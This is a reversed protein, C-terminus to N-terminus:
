PRGLLAAARTWREDALPVVFRWHADDVAACPKGVIGRDVLRAADAPTLCVWPVAPHGVRPRLGARALLSVFEPKRERVRSRLPDLRAPDALVAAALAISLTSAQLPPVYRRLRATTDPAAVAWGVRLGGLGYGKSLGSLVVVNPTAAAWAASRDAPDLYAAYSEDVVLLGCSAALRELAHRSAVTGDAAPRDVCAVAAGGSRGEGLIRVESGREAAWFPLDPHGHAATTVPAGGAAAGLAALLASVGAGATVTEPPLGLASGLRVGGYPDDLRYDRAGDVGLRGAVAAFLEDPPPDQLAPEEVIWRLDLPAAAPNGATRALPAPALPAPALSTRRAVYQLYRSDLSVEAGVHFDTDVAVVQFGCERLLRQVEPPTYLRIDHRIPGDPASATGRSRGSAVDYGREFVRVEGAIETAVRPVYNRLIWAPNTVDLILTGGPRLADRLGCLLTRQDADTGWGFAQVCIAADLSAPRAPVGQFLDACVYRPGNALQGHRRRAEALVDTRCDVALVRWGKDALAAAHRGLGCGADLVPGPSPLRATLYAVELATREPTYEWDAVPWYAPRMFRRHWFSM